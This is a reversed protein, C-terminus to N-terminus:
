AREIEKKIRKIIEYIQSTSYYIGKLDLDRIIDKVRKNDIWKATYLLDYIDRSKRLDAEKLDLIEKKLHLAKEADEARQKLHKSEVEIVYDATKDVIGSYQIGSYCPSHPQTKQFAVLYDNVVDNLVDQAQLYELYEKRHEKYYRM